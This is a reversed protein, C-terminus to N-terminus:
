RPLARARAQCIRVSLDTRQRMAPSIGSATRLAQAWAAAADQRHGLHWQTAGLGVYAKARTNRAVDEGFLRLVKEYQAAAMELDGRAHAIGASGLALWGRLELHLDAPLAAQAQRFWDAAEDGAGEALAQWGLAITAELTCYSQQSRTAEQLAALLITRVQAPVPDEPNAYDAILRAEFLLLRPMERRVGAELAVRAATRLHSHADEIRGLDALSAALLQEAAVIHATDKEHVALRAARAALRVSKALAYRTRAVTALGILNAAAEDRHIPLGLRCLRLARCYCQAAETTRRRYLHISALEHWAVARVRRGRIWSTQGLAHKLWGEAQRYDGRASHIRALQTALGAAVEPLRKERDLHRILGPLCALGQDAAGREIWRPVLGMEPCRVLELLDEWRGAEALHTPLHTSTYPSIGDAGVRFERWGAEALLKHGGGASAAFRGSRGADILWDALSRHFLRIGAGDITLFQSLVRLGQRATQDDRGAARLLLPEPIPERAAVLCNLVPLIEAEYALSDAFRKDFKAYYLGGLTPPLAGIEELSFAADRLADLSEKAFLFNGAAVESVRSIADDGHGTEPSRRQVYMRIDHRNERSVADLRWHQVGEVSFRALLDQDPRSTVILRFWEPIRSASDALLQAFAPGAAQSEDLGDVVFVWPKGVELEERCARLPDAVLTRFLSEPPQDWNPSAYQGIRGRYAPYQETLQDILALLWAAPRCSEFNSRSCFHGGKVNFKAILQAAIASKGVGADATLFLLRSDPRLIWEEIQPFLWARGVFPGGHTALEEHFDLPRRASWWGTAGAGERLPAQGTRAVRDITGPLSVFASSPDVAADIFNLHIIQVPPIIPAIRVPIIPRGLWQAYLWENRCFGESRLSWPSLLAIMLDSRAIGEEISTDFPAGIPIGNEVDLWPEYGRSRLWAALRAAFEAADRRGYSIFLRL